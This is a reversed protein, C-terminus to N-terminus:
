ETSSFGQLNFYTSSSNTINAVNVATNATGRLPPDFRAAAGGGTQEAWGRWLVTSGDKIVVETGTTDHGNFVQVGTIYHRTSAVAAKAEDDATDTVASPSAYSWSAGPLAYPYVVPKGTTTTIIDATDGAAVATYDATLARGGVRVPNGAIAADHAADGVVENTNTGAALTVNPMTVIDVNGINNDGAAITLIDVDGINNTGAALAPLSAVDVDGINNNGAPLAADITASAWVRGASSLNITAHDGDTGAGSAPTDRRVGLILVGEEGGAHASDEAIGAVGGSAIAVKMARSETIGVMGMDGDTVTTPTSEYVGMIPTGSTTGDTFDADDAASTGGSGAGAVISVRLGGDADITPPLYDGDAALDSHSDQRVCLMMVGVDGSSHVADEAKGLNTAGTGPVVSAVDVDGINNNGAAISSVQVAFTGANTVAHSGVTLTGAVSAQIAEVATKISGSNAEATYLQGSADVNLTSNDGDTGSGVAPTDRRVALALVGVDGSAHAVDEAKGLATASTGPIVRTVDVDLGNTADGAIRDTAGDAGSVLKVQQVHVTGGGFDVEDTAATVGGSGADLEVGDAM